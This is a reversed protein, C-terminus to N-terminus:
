KMLIMKKTEVFNETRLQYFYIGSSIGAGDFEIEYEGKPKENNVLVAVEKGLTDYVKVSVNSNRLVSYKIKSTPNFPNPYNNSLYYGNLESKDLYGTGTSTRKIKFLGHLGPPFYIRSTTVYIDGDPTISFSDPWKLRDDAVALEFELEPTMYHIANYEISTFYLNGDPDFEIADCPLAQVVFEVENELQSNTLNTDRLSETKIMYLSYGTLAKYYLYTRDNSLAIGDSHVVFNITQGNITLQINEAKVSYHDQLLRRSQGTSLDVVIIAGLGSDTLYAINDVVDIRIDNLYSQSPAISEDFYIIRIISDTQLDVKLLKVGGEIVSGGISAPDLIWLYNEKDLYVSQVCVFHNEPPTSAGWTNWEDDPYPVLQSDVIEAVSFPITSWRPFNVFMRGSYMRGSNSVAIGTWRPTSYHVEEMLFSYEQSFGPQIFIFIVLSVSFFSKYKMESEKVKKLYFTNL